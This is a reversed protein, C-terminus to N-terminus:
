IEIDIVGYVILLQIAFYLQLYVHPNRIDSELLSEIKQLRYRLGSISLALSSATQEFNGGNSIYVYLTKVTETGKKKDYEMLKGLLNEIYRNIMSENGAQILIGVAGLDHFSFIQRQQNAMQFAALAEDYQYYATEITTACMSTGIKFKKPRYLTQCDELIGTFFQKIDLGQEKLCKSQILIVINDSRQGILYRIQKKSFLVSLTGILKENFEIQEKKIVRQNKKVQNLVAIYFSDELNVDLNFGWKLIEEKTLQKSLIQELFYGRSRQETEIAIQQSLLYLSSSAATKELIMGYIEKIEECKLILTCFGALKQRVIIPSVLYHNGKAYSLLKTSFIEPDKIRKNWKQSEKLHNEFWLNLDKYLEKTEVETLGVKALTRWNQNSIVIPVGLFDNVMEAISHLDKGLMILEMLKKHFDFTQDLNDREIVIQEYAKELEHIMNNEKFFGLEDDVQGGWDSLTKGEWKCSSHGMAQCRHEKYIVKTGLIESTYGSAYGVLIHCSAEKSFGFLRIHEQAEYSSEWTGEIHFRNNEPDLEIIKGQVDAHGMLTHIKTGEMIIEELPAGKMQEMVLAADSAGLNWGYQILFTKARETGITEILNKRLTGIGHSPTMIMRQNNYFLTGNNSQVINLQKEFNNKLMDQWGWM